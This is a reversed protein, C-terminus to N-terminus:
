EGFTTKGSGSDGTLLMGRRGCKDPYSLLWDAHDLALGFASHEIVVGRRIIEIRRADPLLAQERVSKQLHDLQGATPVTASLSLQPENQQGSDLPGGTFDDM